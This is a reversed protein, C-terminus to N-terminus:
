YTPRRHGNRHDIKLGLSRNQNRNNQENTNFCMILTKTFVLLNLGGCRQAQWLGPGPNGVHYTVTNKINLSKLHSTITRKTSMTTIILWWQNCKRKMLSFNHTRVGNMALHVRYLMIHYLKDTCQSLDTAKEPYELKRWWYFQSGRYLQFITSLPM